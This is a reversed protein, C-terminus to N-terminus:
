NGRQVEETYQDIDVIDGLLLQLTKWKTAIQARRGLDVTDRAIFDIVQVPWTQGIRHLRDEAQINKTPSWHRDLMCCTSSRFLEIGEGGAAITAAFVRLDGGQFADKSYDREEKSMKGTYLGTPIKRSALKRGVLEVMSRSQSFVVIAEDPNDEIVEMLADLKSSPEELQIRTRREPVPEVGMEAAVERARRTIIHDYSIAPSALAFQQLRVLQAVVVSATLPTEEHEGIWAIMDKRMQNYAKRQGPLLDVFKDTYYKEPLDIVETKLRRIYFPDMMAHLQPMAEANAGVIKRFTAGKTETLEERCFQKVYRWYSSFQKPYLWNLISWLDQPANDAPTGSCGTKYYTKLEKLARTQQAKRNKVRHVEDCIIHFWQVSKLEPVLRLAEYHIIYYCYGGKKVAQAFPARNKRDISIIGRGPEWTHNVMSIHRVWSEHVGQPAVILTPRKYAKERDRRLLGDIYLAEVTKGLGMDDGILRSVVESRGLKEACAEQFPYLKVPERV